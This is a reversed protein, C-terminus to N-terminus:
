ISEEGEDKQVDVRLPLSSPSNTVSSFHKGAFGLSGSANSLHQIQQATKKM